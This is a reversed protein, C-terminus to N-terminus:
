CLVMVVRKNRYRLIIKLVACMAMALSQFRFRKKSRKLILGIPKVKMCRRAHVGMYRLQRCGLQADFGLRMKVTVPKNVAQVLHAILDKAYAVDKMLYSGAKAKIVKNVPCGMNFDIIDCDTQTDLYKGAYVVSEIDHGFIQFSLPHEDARSICMAETKKSGYFLAKDSVMENCVLGAGLEKSIQRFAINSIGAMPAIVVNNPCEVNGIKLKSTM